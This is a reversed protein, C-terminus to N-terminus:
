RCVRTHLKVNLGTPRFVVVCILRLEWIHRMASCASFRATACSRRWRQTHSRSSATGQKGCRPRVIPRFRCCHGRRVMGVGLMHSQGWCVGCQSRPDVVFRCAGRHDVLRRVSVQAYGYAALGFCGALWLAFHATLGGCLGGMLAAQTERSPAPLRAPGPTACSVVNGAGVLFSHPACPAGHRQRHGAAAAACRCRCCPGVGAQM